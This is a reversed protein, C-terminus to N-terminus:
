FIRPLPFFYWESMLPLILRISLESRDSSPSYVLMANSDYSDTELILFHRHVSEHFIGNSRLRPFYCMRPTGELIGSLVHVQFILNDFIEFFTIAIKPIVTDITTDTDIPRSKSSRTISRIALYPYVVVVLGVPLLHDHKDSQSLVM